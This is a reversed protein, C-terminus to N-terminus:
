LDLVDNLVLANGVDAVLLAPISQCVSRQVDHQSQRRTSQVRHRARDDWEGAHEAGCASRGRLAVSM